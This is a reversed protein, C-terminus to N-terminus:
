EVLRKLDYVQAPKSLGKLNLEGIKEVEVRDELAVQM